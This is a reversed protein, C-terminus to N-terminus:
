DVVLGCCFSGAGGKSPRLNKLLKMRLDVSFELDLDAITHVWSFAMEM